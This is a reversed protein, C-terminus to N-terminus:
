AARDSDIIAAPMPGHGIASPTASGGLGLAKEICLSLQVGLSEAYTTIIGRHDGSVTRIELEAALGAWFAAKRVWFADTKEAKFLTIRGPYYRPRYGRLAKNASDLVSALGEPLTPDAISQRRFGDLYRARIPERVGYLRKLVYRVAKRLPLRAAAAAHEHVRQKWHELLFGLPMFRPHPRTDFLALLAVDEGNARLNQAIELAVLGGFSLGALLYPGQPQLKRIHQLYYKAMDEIREHPASVSDLWIEQLGYIQRDGSIYGAPVALEMANGGAGCVIFLAPFTKGPRLSVLPSFEPETDSNLISGLGAVTPADYITTLPLKRDFSSNIKVLLQVARLSHGGLDFFNDHRGVRERGLVETWIEAIATEVPGIPAEYARTAYAAEDPAPLAKRDLKGNPTLPMRELRVYAAPVMYAPLAAALHARLVEIEPEDGNQATTYYAVLRKDGAGGERALLAAERVGPCSSLRAEIEGLEIRYGRIKVQFDNRGLFEINGDALYRGLDGTKYLRDGAVFPSAVFREATLEPHNLYGRAVGAGGIYIEGAVGIPAPQMTGDLIYIRTNAIPRGIPVSASAPAADVRFCAAFTTTETPGYGNTLTVGPAENLVRRVHAVSLVDGGALLHKLPRLSAPEHNVFEHFLGATLWLIRVDGAAIARAIARVDVPSDPHLVLRAGNLLGGWIELTSADFALPALVLIGDGTAIDVFDPHHMRAVVNRHETMVGKPTGTSGSTYIVYALNSPTLGSAGPDPNVVPRGQWLQADAELDLVAPCQPLAGLAQRAAGDTLILASASDKIMFMLREAPYEPDLPVYAGGAKLVALLGIVMERSREMCIAVRTDPRVGPSALHHALRNSRLNLEGYSLSGHRDVVAIAAPTRAAREEFLQHICAEAPLDAATPNCDILLRRREAETLLPLQAVQQGPDEAVAQLLTQYHGFMRTIREADFLDRNYEAELWIEDGTDTLFLTLDFKSTASHALLPEVTVGDLGIFPLQQDRDRWNIVVQFLPGHSLARDPRIKGVVQDFPVRRHNYLAVLGSQVRALLERFPMEASLRTRLAQTDVLFGILSQTEPRDRDAVPIGIVLDRDGTYRYLLVELAATLVNYLSTREQRSRLRLAEALTAGLYFRQKAGRYSQIGPRPRDTPLQLLDPAGRLNDEWYTLEKGFDTLALWQRQSIVCDRNQIPPAPLTPTEGRVLARYLAALERWVVGFSWRDSIIHHMMLILVNEFPGLRLLTIRIGPESRLDYLRRPEDILLREVEAERDAAARDGLDIQKIALPWSDHVRAKVEQESREFTTRLIEHREVLADVARQMADIDFKGRLRAAEAENYLPVEAALESFFWIRRQGPSLPYPAAAARGDAAPAPNITPYGTAPAPENLRRSVLAGQQRVTPHEFFESLSLPVPLRDRLNSLCKLALLSHGGLAFFNSDAVIDVPGLLDRWSDAITQEIVSLPRVTKSEADHGHGEAANCAALNVAQDLLHLRQVKGSPGKPLDAVFHIRTPTRFHGLRDECFALVAREDPPMGTRLVAFAVLDEGVYRDPVGVVAAELVSPHAELVEDIQRPAINVGSKIIVEKSRGVVFFYGDSDQYALDGTYLWGDADLVSGTLEADKYYGQMIAPGRLLIEGPEDAPLDVGNRDVIRTEFGWALGPSGIKNEGPPLPNSFVNGTETSGMAQILLVHFKKLFERHLAPSLPASSSRLFRLRKLTSQRREAHPDKWDLLQAVITPVVASWTCEYHELWEWFQAVSFRHPVVISGGSMLTPMLTVCEANIHYLPLVLLSRDAASLGHSLIANRGHALLTRHSHIAAKPRGVSGSSYMLLAPDEAAPPAPLAADLQTVAENALMDIEAAIVPVAQPLGRVAEEAIARYQDEVFILQADCHELTSALQAAGARVDLPVSVLGAYMTGLFLQVTFLGNDMLFAVKDGAHLGAKGLRSAIAQLQERLGAFTLIREAEPGILFVDDGRAQAMRDVCERITGIDSGHMVPENM